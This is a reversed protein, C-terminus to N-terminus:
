RWSIEVRRNEPTPEGARGAVAPETAGKAVIQLRGVPIGRAALGRLTAHARAESLRLNGGASGVSDTAGSVVMVIPNGDRFLRAAHDLVGEDEPRIAASGESFHLVLPAPAASEANTVQTTAAPPRPQGYAPLSALLIVGLQIRM